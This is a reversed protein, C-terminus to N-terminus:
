GAKIWECIFNICETNTPKKYDFDERMQESKWGASIATTIDAMVRSTYTKFQKAVEKCVSELVIYDEQMCLLVVELLYDYGKRKESIQWVNLLKKCEEKIAEMKEKKKIIEQIKAFNMEDSLNCLIELIEDSTRGQQKLSEVVLKLANM